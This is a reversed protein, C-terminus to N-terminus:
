DSASERNAILRHDPVAVRPGKIAAAFLEVVARVKSSLQRASPYVAFVNAHEFEYASMACEALAMRTHM